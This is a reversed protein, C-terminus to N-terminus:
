PAFITARHSAIVVCTTLALIISGIVLWELLTPPRFALWNGWNGKCPEATKPPAYPNEEMGEM